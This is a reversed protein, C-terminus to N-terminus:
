GVKSTVGPNFGKVTLFIYTLIFRYKSVLLSYSGFHTGCHNRPDNSPVHRDAIPQNKGAGLFLGLLRQSITSGAWTGERKKTGFYSLNIKNIQKKKECLKKVSKKNSVQSSRIHNVQQLEKSNLEANRNKQPKYKYWLYTGGRLGIQCDMHRSDGM